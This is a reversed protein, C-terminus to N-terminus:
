NVNLTLCKQFYHEVIVFSFRVPQLLSLHEHILLIVVQSSVM